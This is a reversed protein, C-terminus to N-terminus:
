KQTKLDLYQQIISIAPDAGRCLLVYYGQQELALQWAKQDATQRGIRTKMEIWLGYFGARPVPLFLDPVGPKVGGLKMRAGELSYHRGRADVRAARSGGNPIAFLLKLEPWRSEMIAAWKVVLQQEDSETLEM